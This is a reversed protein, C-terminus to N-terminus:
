FFHLIADEQKSKVNQAGKGLIKGMQLHAKNNHPESILVSQLDILAEDLNKLDAYAIARKLRLQIVIADLGGKNMGLTYEQIAEAYKKLSRYCDGM